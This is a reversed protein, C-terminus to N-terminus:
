LYYSYGDSVFESQDNALREAEDTLWSLVDATQHSKAQWGLQGHKLYQLLLERRHETPQYVTGHPENSFAGSSDPERDTLADHGAGWYRHTTSRLAVALERQMIAALEKISQSAESWPVQVELRPIRIVEEGPAFEDFVQEIASLLTSDLEARLMQRQALASTM